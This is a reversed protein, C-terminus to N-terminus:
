DGSIAKGLPGVPGSKRPEESAIGEPTGEGKVGIAVPTIRTIRNRKDCFKLAVIALHEVFNRLTGRLYSPCLIVWVFIRGGIGRWKKNGGHAIVHLVASIFLPTADASAYEYPYDKAWAIQSASQSIEHPVKGDDRQFKAIFAIADRSNSWNGDSNFAFSSWFSDRGFFWAFGPRYAGKSLGYGAVLGKGLFPNEVMGKVLSLRSWDYATQLDRDPLTVSVTQSLYHNYFDNTDKEIAAANQLLNAEIQQAEGRLKMSGGFALI